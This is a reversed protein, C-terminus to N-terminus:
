LGPAEHRYVGPDRPNDPWFEDQVLGSRQPSCIAEPSFLVPKALILAVIQNAVPDRLANLQGSQGSIEKPRPHLVERTKRMNGTKQDEGEM